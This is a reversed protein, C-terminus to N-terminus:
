DPFSLILQGTRGNRGQGEGLLGAGWLGRKRSLHGGGHHLIGRAVELYHVLVALRHVPLIVGILGAVTQTVLHRIAVHHATVIIIAGNLPEVVTTNAQGLSGFPLPKTRLTRCGNFTATSPVLQALTCYRKLFFFFIIDTQKIKFTLVSITYLITHECTQLSQCACVPICLQDEYCQNM